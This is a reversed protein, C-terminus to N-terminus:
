SVAPVLVRLVRIVPPGMLVALLSPFICVVLPLLLLVPLRAAREEAVLRRKIRLSEAHVRLSEALGTGFRDAQILMSVLMDIDELGVRLALSRLADVRSTGARLQLSLM